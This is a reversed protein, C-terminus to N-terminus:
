SRWRPGTEELSSAQQETRSSLDQNGSAIQTSAAITELATRVEAVIRALADRM